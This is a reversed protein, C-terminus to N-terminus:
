RNANEIEVLANDLVTPKVEPYKWDAHADVTLTGCGTLLVILVLCSLTKLM